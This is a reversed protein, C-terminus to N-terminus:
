GKEALLSRAADIQGWTNWLLVGRVRSQNLYYVVGERFQEKWQEVIEFRSDLEGIAEYGLEFLDSYFAPLQQYALNGGAMNKGAIEGMMVANNEHEVRIRKGLSPNYFNAVDGAAYIDQHSTKLFEDVVIGNEVVLGASQALEVNPQMGIGAIVGDVELKRGTATTIIYTAHHKEINTVGDKPLVEVGKSQYFTNLFNSLGPPYVRAGIGDEPFIVAVSKNNIALAAAIESGIFGGGIVAFKKGQETLAKLNHYDDLTRFYIIGDVNYLLRRVTGGTALLLKDFSYNTGKDDVAIKKKLDISKVLRSLYTEVNETPTARWINELPEGKWLGKSLLPRSYPLHNEGSILGIKDSKNIQRIGKVAADATMGGGIILYKYYWM